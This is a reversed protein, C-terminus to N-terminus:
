RESLWCDCKVPALYAMTKNQAVNRQLLACKSEHMENARLIDITRSHETLLLDRQRTVEALQGQMAEWSCEIPDGDCVHVPHGAPTTAM